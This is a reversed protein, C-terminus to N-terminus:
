VGGDYYIAASNIGCLGAGGSGSVVVVVADGSVLTYDPLSYGVSLIGVTASNTVSLLVTIAGTSVNVIRVELYNFTDSALLRADIARLRSGEAIPPSWGVGDGNATAIYRTAYSSTITAFGYTPAFGGAFGMKSFENWTAAASKTPHHITGTSVTLVGTVTTNGFTPQITPLANTVTINGNSQVAMLALAAPPAPFTWTGAGTARLTMTSAGNKIQYEGARVSAVVGPDQTFEYAGEADIYTVRAPNVGGYDGVIGGISGSDIAGGATIRVAGVGSLFYLDGGIAYVSGAVTPAVSQNLLQMYSANTLGGGQLDLASGAFTIAAVPVTSEVAAILRSFTDVIKATAVSELDTLLPPTANLASGVPM